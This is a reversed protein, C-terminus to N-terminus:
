TTVISTLSAESLWSCDASPPELWLWLVSRSPTEVGSVFEGLKGKGCSKDGDLISFFKDWTRLVDIINDCLQDIQADIDDVDERKFQRLMTKAENFIAEANKMIERMPRGAFQKKHYDERVVNFTRYIKEMLLYWTVQVDKPPRRRGKAADAAKKLLDARRAKADDRTKRTAKFEGDLLDLEAQEEDNM